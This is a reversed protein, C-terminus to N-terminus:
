APIDCSHSSEHPKFLHVPKSYINPPPNTSRELNNRRDARSSTPLSFCSDVLFYKVSGIENIGALLFLDLKFLLLYGLVFGGGRRALM